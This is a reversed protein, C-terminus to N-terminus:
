VKYQFARTGFRFRTAWKLPLGLDEELTLLEEERAEERVNVAQNPPKHFVWLCLM